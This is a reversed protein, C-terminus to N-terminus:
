GYPTLTGGIKDTTKMVMDGNISALTLPTPALTAAAVAGFGRKMMAMAERHRQEIREDEKQSSAGDGVTANLKGAGMSIVENVRIPNTTALVSDRSNLNFIGAPGIMHSIGGPGFSGDKLPTSTNLPQVDKAVDTPEIADALLGASIGAAGIVAGIGAGAGTAMLIGGLISAFTAFTKLKSVIEAHFNRIGETIKKFPDEGETFTEIYALFQQLKEEIPDGFTKLLQRGIMSLSNLIRQLAGLAQQGTLDDWPKTALATKLTLKDMGGMLKSVQGVTMGVAKAISEQHYVGLKLYDGQSKVLRTIEVQYEDIKGLYSLERAKQMNFAKGTIAQVTFEARLSEAIDLTGRASQSWTDMEVGLAKANITAAALSKGGDKFWRATIEANQAMEKLVAAPNINKQEALQATSEMLSEAQDKSLRGTQMFTGFVKTAEDNTLGTAVATDLITKAIDTTESLGIGFESSLAYAVSLVDDMNKGISAVDVGAQMLDETFKKNTTAVFGFTKGINTVRDSADKLLKIILAITGAVIGFAAVEPKQTISKAFIKAKSAMGGTLKDAAEMATKQLEQMRVRKEETALTKLVNQQSIAEQTLGKARLENEKAISATLLKQIDEQDLSGSVAKKITDYQDEYAENLEGETDIQKKIYSLADIAQDNLQKSTNVLGGSQTKLIDNAKQREIISSNIQKAFSSETQQVDLLMQELELIKEQAQQYVKATNNHAELVIKQRELEATIQKITELKIREEAM